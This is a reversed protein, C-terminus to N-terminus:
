DLGGLERALKRRELADEVQRRVHRRTADDPRVQEPARETCRGDPTLPRAHITIPQGRGRSAAM